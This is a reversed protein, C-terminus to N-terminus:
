QNRWDNLTDEAIGKVTKTSALTKLSKKVHSLDAVEWETGILKLGNIFFGLESDPEWYPDSDLIQALKLDFSALAVGQRLERDEIQSLPHKANALVADIKSSWIKWTEAKSFDTIEPMKEYWSEMWPTDPDEGLGILSEIPVEAISPLSKSRLRRIKDSENEYSGPLRKSLIKLAEFPLDTKLVARYGGLYPTLDGDRVLERLKRRYLHRQDLPIGLVTLVDDETFASSSSGNVIKGDRALSGITTWFMRTKAKMSGVRLVEVPIMLRNYREAM